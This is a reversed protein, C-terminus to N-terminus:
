SLGGAPGAAGKERVCLAKVKLAWRQEKQDWRLQPDLAGLGWAAAGGSTLTVGWQGSCDDTRRHDGLAPSDPPSM